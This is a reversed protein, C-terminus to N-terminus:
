TAERQRVLMWLRQRTTTYEEGYGYKYDPFHKEQWHIMAGNDTPVYLKRPGNTQKGTGHQEIEFIGQYGNAISQEICANVDVGRKNWRYLRKLIYKLTEPTVKHSIEKRHQILDAWLEPDIYPPLDSKSPFFDPQKV